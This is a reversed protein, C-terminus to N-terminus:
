RDIVVTLNGTQEVVDRFLGSTKGILEAARQADYLEVRVGTKNWTISKILHGNEKVKEMDLGGWSAIVDTIKGRMQRALVSVVEEQTVGHGSWIERIVSQVKDNRITRSGVVNLYIDTPNEGGYGASRAAETQNYGNSFWADIFARQKGTLQWYGNPREESV